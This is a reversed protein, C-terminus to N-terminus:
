GRLHLPQSSPQKFPLPILISLRLWKCSTLIHFFPSFPPAGGILDLWYRIRSSKSLRGPLNVGPFAMCRSATITLICFRLPPISCSRAGALAIVSVISVTQGLISSHSESRAERRRPLKWIMLEAFCSLAAIVFRLVCCAQGHGFFQRCIALSSPSLPTPM